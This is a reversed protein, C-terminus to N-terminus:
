ATKAENKQNIYPSSKLISLNDLIKVKAKQPARKNPTPKKNTTKKTTTKPPAKKTEKQAKNIQSNKTVPKKAM